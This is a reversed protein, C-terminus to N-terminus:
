GTVSTIQENQLHLITDGSIFLFLKPIKSPLSLDVRPFSKNIVRICWSGLSAPDKIRIVRWLKNRIPGKPSTKACNPWTFFFFSKNIVRICWSGLSAPDKIRIVRWLKNRIPGKPSTKTCNPWTFFFLNKADPNRYFFSATPRNKKNNM